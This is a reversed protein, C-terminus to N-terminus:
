PVKLVELIKDGYNWELIIDDSVTKGNDGLNSLVFYDDKKLVFLYGWFGTKLVEIDKGLKNSLINQEISYLTDQLNIVYLDTFVTDNKFNVFVDGIFTGDKGKLSHVKVFDNKIVKENRKAPLIEGPEINDKHNTNASCRILLFLLLMFLFDTTKM